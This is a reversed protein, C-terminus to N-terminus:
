ALLTDIVLRAYREQNADMVVKTEERDPYSGRHYKRRDVVTMGRTYEGSTEIMVHFDEIVMISPDIASAVALLDAPSIAGEEIVVKQTVRNVKNRKVEFIMGAARCWPKEVHAEIKQQEALNLYGGRSLPDLPVMLRPLLSDFVIRAAEPDIYINFESMIKANGADMGGAMMTLQRVKENIRPEKRLALAVNTLPGLTIWDMPQKARMFTRIIFDVAHEKEVMLTPQPLDVGGLGDSGHIKSADEVQQDILPLASGAYVPVKKGSHEVIRLTNNVVNSLGVNGSVCTIGLVEFEPSRLALLLALADDTGTDCDIIVKRPM